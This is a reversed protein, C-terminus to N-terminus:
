IKFLFEYLIIQKETPLQEALAKFTKSDSIYNLEEKKFKLERNNIAEVKEVFDVPGSLMNNGLTQVAPKVTIFEKEEPTLEDQSKKILNKFKDSRVKENFDKNYEKILTQIDEAREDLFASLKKILKITKMYLDVSLYKLQINQDTLAAHLSEAPQTKM